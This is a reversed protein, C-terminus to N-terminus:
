APTTAPYWKSCAPSIFSSFVIDKLERQENRKVEDDVCVVCVHV